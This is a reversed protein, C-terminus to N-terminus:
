HISISENEDESDIKDIKEDMLTVLWTITKSPSRFQHKSLKILKEWTEISVAVSKYRNIDPMKKDKINQKRIM